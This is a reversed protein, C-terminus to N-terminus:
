NLADIDGQEAYDGFDKPVSVIHLVMTAASARQYNPVINGSLKGGRGTKPHKFSVKVSETSRPSTLDGTNLRMLETNGRLYAFGMGVAGAYTFAVTHFATHFVESRAHNYLEELKFGVSQLFVATPRDEYFYRSRHSIMMKESDQFVQQRTRLDAKGLAFERSAPIRYASFSPPYNKSKMLEIQHDAFDKSESALCYQWFTFYKSGKDGAKFALKAFEALVAKYSEPHGHSSTGSVSVKKYRIFVLRRYYQDAETRAENVKQWASMVRVGEIASNIDVDEDHGLPFIVHAAPLNKDSAPDKMSLRLAMHFNRKGGEVRLSVNPGQKKTNVMDRPVTIDAKDTTSAVKRYGEARREAAEPTDEKFCPPLSWPNQELETEIDEVQSKKDIINIPYQPAKAAAQERAIKAAEKYSMREEYRSQQQIQEEPVALARRIAEAEEETIWEEKILVSVDDFENSSKDDSGQGATAPLPIGAAIASGEKLFQDDDDDSDSDGAAGDPHDDPEEERGIPPTSQHEVTTQERTVRGKIMKQCIEVQATLRELWSYKSCSKRKIALDEPIPENMMRFTRGVQAETVFITGYMLMTIFIHATSKSQAAYKDQFEEVVIKEVATLNPEAYPNSAEM